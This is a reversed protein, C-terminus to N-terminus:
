SPEELSLVSMACPQLSNVSTDESGLFSATQRSAQFYVFLLLFLLTVSLSKPFHSLLSIMCPTRRYEMREKKLQENLLCKDFVISLPVVCAHAFVSACAMYLGHSNVKTLMILKSAM